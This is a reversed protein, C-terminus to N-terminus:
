WAAGLLRVFVFAFVFAVVLALEVATGVAVVLVGAIPDAATPFGAGEKVSL